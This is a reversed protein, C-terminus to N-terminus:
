FSAAVSDVYRMLAIVLDNNVTGVHAKALAEVSYIQTVSVCEGTEKEYLAVTHMKRMDLAKVSIRAISKTKASNYGFDAGDVTFVEENGDITYRAEYKTIDAYPVVFRYEM